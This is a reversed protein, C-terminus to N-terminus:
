NYMNKFKAQNQVFSCHFTALLSQLAHKFYVLVVPQGGCIKDETSDSSQSRGSKTLILKIKEFQKQNNKVAM